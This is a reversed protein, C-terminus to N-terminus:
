EQGSGILMRQRSGEDSSTWDEKREQAVLDDFSVDIGEDRALIAARVIKDLDIGQTWAKEVDHVDLTVGGQKATIMAQVVTKYDVRSLRMRILDFIMVPNGSLFAQLWLRFFMTFILFCAVLLFLMPLLMAIAVIVSQAFLM